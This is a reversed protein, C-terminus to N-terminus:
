HSHDCDKDKFKHSINEPVAPIEKRVDEGLHYLAVHLNDLWIDALAKNTVTGVGHFECTYGAKQLRSSWSREHTGAIDHLFHHGPVGMFPFLHVKKYDHKQMKEMVAELSLGDGMLAGIYYNPSLRALLADLAHYYIHAEHYTGHGVLVVAEDQPIDQPIYSPLANIADYIYRETILPLGVTVKHLGKRPHELGKAQQVTWDFEVGPVTHLPQVAVHTFGADYMEVLAQSVSKEKLKRRVKDATYARYVPINPFREEVRKEFSTYDAIIHEVSSGFPALLIGLKLPKEHHHHHDHGHHGCCKEGHAHEHHGHHEHNGHHEGHHGKCKGGHGHDHGHHEHHGHGHNGCCKKGHEHHEHHGHHDGHHGKCKGGHGHEHHDHHGHGHGHHGCCKKGHEHNHNESM